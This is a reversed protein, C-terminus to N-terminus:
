KSKVYIGNCQAKAYHEIGVGIFDNNNYLAVLKFEFKELLANIEDFKAWGKQNFFNLEIYIVKVGRLTKSAGQLVHNESGETDLFLFDVKEIGESDVFSDITIFDVREEQADRKHKYRNSGEAQLMHDREKEIYFQTNKSYLAKKLLSYGSLKCTKFKAESYIDHIPEFAWHSSRPWKKKMQLSDIGDFAGAEIISPTDTELYQGIKDFIRLGCNLRWPLKEICASTEIEEYANYLSKYFWGLQSKNHAVVEKDILYQALQTSAKKTAEQQEYYQTIAVRSFAIDKLLIHSYFFDCTPGRNFLVSSIFYEYFEPKIHTKTLQVLKDNLSHGKHVEDHVLEKIKIYQEQM